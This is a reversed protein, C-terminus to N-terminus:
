LVLRLRSRCCVLRSCIMLGWGFLDKILGILYYVWYIIYFLKVIVLAINFRLIPPSLTSICVNSSYNLLISWLWCPLILNASAIFSIWRIQLILRIFWPINFLIMYVISLKTVNSSNKANNYSVSNSLPIVLYMLTLTSISYIM